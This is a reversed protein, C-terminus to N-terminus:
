KLSSSYLKELTIASDLLGPRCHNISDFVLKGSVSASLSDMYHHFAVIKKYEREPILAAAPVNVEGTSTIHKGSAIGHVKFSAPVHGSFTEIVISVCILVSLGVFILLGFKQSRVSLRNVKRDMFGAWKEQLRLLQMVIGSAVKEQLPNALVPKAKFRFLRFM